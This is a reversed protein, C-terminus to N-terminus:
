NNHMTTSKKEVFVYAASIQLFEAAASKRFHYVVIHRELTIQSASIPFSASCFVFAKFTKQRLYKVYDIIRHM